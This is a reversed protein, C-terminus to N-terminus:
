ARQWASSHSRPTHLLRKIAHRGSWIINSELGLGLLGLLRKLLGEEEDLVEVDVRGDLNSTAGGGENAHPKCHKGVKKVSTECSLL